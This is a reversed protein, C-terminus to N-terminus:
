GGGEDAEIVGLERVEVACRLADAAAQAEALTEHLEPDLGYQWRAVSYAARPTRLISAVVRGGPALRVWQGAGVATWDSIM